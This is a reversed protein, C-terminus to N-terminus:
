QDSKKNEVAAQSNCSYGGVLPIGFILINGIRLSVEPSKVRAYDRVSPLVEPGVSKAGMAPIDLDRTLVAAAGSKKYLVVFEIDDQDRVNERQLPNTKVEHFEIRTQLDQWAERLKAEPLSRERALRPIHRDVEEHMKTPAITLIVGSDMAERLATRASINRRKSAVFLLEGIVINTDLVLRIQVHMDFLKSLSPYKKCLEYMPRLSDSRPTSISKDPQQGTTSYM